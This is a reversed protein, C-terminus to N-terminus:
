KEENYEINQYYTSLEQVTLHFAGKYAQLLSVCQVYRTLPTNHTESINQFILNFLIPKM